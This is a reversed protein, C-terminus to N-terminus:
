NKEENKGGWNVIETASFEEIQAISSWLQSLEKYYAMEYSFLTNIDTLLALFDIKNVQYNALSSEITLSAQPIIKERYLKILNESTNAKIYNEIIILSIDNKMTTLKNKSSEMLAQSEALRKAQKTKYYLPIEVGVMVEYMDGLHGKFDWGGEVKFDPYYEKKSMEIMKSNEEIMLDTEKVLPSNEASLKQLEQLSIELGYIEMDEPIGLPKDPPFDLLLNIQANLSKIMENMPIIMEEIKSIEVQAKLIDSQVGNGVAYKTETLNLAKELLTKQRMLIEISKQLSFLEFYAVKVEKIVNLEVSHLAVSKREYEKEAIEGKLRLKGPFPLTQSFSLGIGSMPDQGITLKNFGINKFSFGVMPDPLSKEQPIRFAYAEVEKAVAKIKPNRELALKTLEELRITREQSFLFSSLLLLLLFLWAKKMKVEMKHISNQKPACTL